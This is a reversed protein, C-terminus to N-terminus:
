SNAKSIADLTRMVTDVCNGALAVNILMVMRHISYIM